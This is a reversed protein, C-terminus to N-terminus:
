TLEEMRTLKTPTRIPGLRLRPIGKELDRHAWGASDQIEELNRKDSLVFAPRSEDM